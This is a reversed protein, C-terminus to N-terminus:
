TKRKIGFKKMKTILTDRHIGLVRAAQTNNGGTQSLAQRLAHAELEELNLTPLQGPAASPQEDLLLDLSRPSIVRGETTAVAAELVSRLQRINGPWGYSQLRELASESLTL